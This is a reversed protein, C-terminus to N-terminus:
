LHTEDGEYTSTGNLNLEVRLMFGDCQTPCKDPPCNPAQSNNGSAKNYVGHIWEPNSWIINLLPPDRGNWDTSNLTIEGDPGYDTMGMGIGYIIFFSFRRHHHFQERTNGPAYVNLARIEDNEFIIKHNHPAAGPADMIKKWAHWPYPKMSNDFECKTETINWLIPDIISDVQMYAWQESTVSRLARVVSKQGTLLSTATPDLQLSIRQLWECLLPFTPPLAKAPFTIPVPFIRGFATTLVLVYYLVNM